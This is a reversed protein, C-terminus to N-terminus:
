GEARSEHLRKLFPKSLFSGNDLGCLREFM